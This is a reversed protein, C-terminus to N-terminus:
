GENVESSHIPSRPSGGVVGLTSLDWVRTRLRLTRRHMTGGAAGMGIALGGTDQLDLDPYATSFCCLRM